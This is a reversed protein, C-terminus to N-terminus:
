EDMFAFLLQQNKVSIPEIDSWSCVIKGNRDFASCTSQPLVIYCANEAVKVIEGIKGRCKTCYGNYKIKTGVPYRKTAM